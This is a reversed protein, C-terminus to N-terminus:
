YSQQRVAEFLCIGSAVSVNLSEVQGLMPIKLLMDCNKKTLQRLGAGEAGLVLAIRGSLDEQYISKSAEGDMGMLWINQDQLVKMTRSLNAVQVFPVTEAAGSAVKRVTPNLGVSRDKPAVVATVNAADAVRLCAGLNHPDQVGDLILLLPKTTDEILDLLEDETKSQQLKVHAAIGQHVQGPLWKDLKSRAIINYSVGYEKTLDLIDQFRKQDDILFLEIVREPTKKLIQKIAHVGYILNNPDM